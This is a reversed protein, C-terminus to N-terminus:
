PVPLVVGFVHELEVDVLFLKGQLRHVTGTVGEDKVRSLSRVLLQRNPHGLKTNQVSILRAACQTSQGSDPSEHLIIRMMEARGILYTM